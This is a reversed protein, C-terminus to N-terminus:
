NDLASVAIFDEGQNGAVYKRFNDAETPPYIWHSFEDQTNVGALAFGSKELVKMSATNQLDVSGSFASGGSQAIEPIVSSDDVLERIIKTGYGKSRLKPNVIILNIRNLTIQHPYTNNKSIFLSAAVIDGDLVVKCSYPEDYDGCVRVYYEYRERISEDFAAYRRTNEDDTWSAIETEYKSSYNVWKFIM